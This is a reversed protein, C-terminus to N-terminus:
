LGTLPNKKDFRVLGDKATEMAINSANDALNKVRTDSADTGTM